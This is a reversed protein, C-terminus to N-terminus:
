SDIPSAEPHLAAELATATKFAVYQHGFTMDYWFNVAATFGHQSVRHLWMPPLYLVSGAPVMVTVPHAHRSHPYARRVEIEALRATDPAVWATEGDNTEVRWAHPGSAERRYRMSPLHKLRRVFAADPPPLLTFTKTGTIVAFFNEYYDSHATTTATDTGIWLNVADLSPLGDSSGDRCQLVRDAFLFRAPIDPEEGESEPETLFSAEDADRLCDCQRSFYWREDVRPTKEDIDVSSSAAAPAPGHLSCDTVVPLLVSEAGYRAWGLTHRLAADSFESSYESARCEPSRSAENVRDILEAFDVRREEPSLFAAVLGAGCLSCISQKVGDQPPSGSCVAVAADGLGTPTVDVTVARGAGRRKLYERGEEGAWKRVGPWSDIADEIVAPRGQSVFEAFFQEPTLDVASVTPVTKVAWFDGIAEQLGECAEEM